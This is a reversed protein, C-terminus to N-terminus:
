NGGFDGATETPRSPRQRNVAGLFKPKLGSVDSSSRPDHWAIKIAACSLFIRHTDGSECVPCLVVGKFDMPHRIEFIEACTNCIYDYRM